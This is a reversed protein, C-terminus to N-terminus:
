ASEGQSFERRLIARSVFFGVVTLVGAVIIGLAKSLGLLGALRPAVNLSVLLVVIPVMGLITLRSRTPRDSEVGSLM